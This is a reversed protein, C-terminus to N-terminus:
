RTRYDARGDTLRGVDATRLFTQASDEDKLYRDLFATTMARVIEVAAHDPEGGRDPNCILGGLYHDSGETIVSYKDGPPPMTFALRRWEAPTLGGPDVRGIDNTGGTAILPKRVTDYGDESIEKVNKGPGPASLLVAARFRDDYPEGWEGRYEPKVGLGIKIMAIGAGFSHGAVGASQTDIKDRIGAEAGIEEISDLVFSVDRLRSPFFLPFQDPTPKAANNPSDIHNPAIVIYGHTVWHGTIRDYMQPWCFAGSSFVVVPFPGEGDPYLVRLSVDQDRVPDRVTLQEITVVSHPGPDIKYLDPEAAGAAACFACAALMGGLVRM